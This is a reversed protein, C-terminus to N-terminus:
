EELSIGGRMERFLKKFVFELTGTRSMISEKGELREEDKGFKGKGGRTPQVSVDGLIETAEKFKCLLYSRPFNLSGKLLLSPILPSPLPVLPHQRTPRTLSFPASALWVPPGPVSPEGLPHPHNPPEDSNNHNTPSYVLFLFSTTAKNYKDINYDM